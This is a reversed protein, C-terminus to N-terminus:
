APWRDQKIDTVVVRQKPALGEFAEAVSGYRRTRGILPQVFVSRTGRWMIWRCLPSSGLHFALVEEYDETESGHDLRVVMRLSNAESWSRILILEPVSFSVGKLAKPPLHIVPM